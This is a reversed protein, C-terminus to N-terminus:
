HLTGAAEAHSMLLWQDFAAPAGILKDIAESVSMAADEEGCEDLLGLIEVLMASAKKKMADPKEM